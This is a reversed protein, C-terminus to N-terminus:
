RSQKRDDNASGDGHERRVADEAHDIAGEDADDVPDEPDAERQEARGAAEVHRDGTVFGVVEKPKTKKESM